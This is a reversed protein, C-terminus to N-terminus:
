RSFFLGYQITFPIGCGKVLQINGNGITAASADCIPQPAEAGVNPVHTHALGIVDWESLRSIAEELLDRVRGQSTWEDSFIFDDELVVVYPLNQDIAFQLLSRHSQLCGYTGKCFSLRSSGGRM